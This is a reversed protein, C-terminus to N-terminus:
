RLGSATANWSDAHLHEDIIEIKLRARSLVSVFVRRYDQEVGDNKIPKCLLVVVATATDGDEFVHGEYGDLQIGVLSQESSFAEELYAFIHSEFACASYGKLASSARQLMDVTLGSGDIISEWSTADILPDLVDRFFAALYGYDIIEIGTALRGDSWVYLDIGDFVRGRHTAQLRVRISGRWYSDGVVVDFLSASIVTFSGARGIRKAVTNSLVDSARMAVDDYYSPTAFIGKARLRTDLEELATKMNDSHNEKTTTMRKTTV